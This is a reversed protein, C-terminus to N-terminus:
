QGHLHSAAGHVLAMTHRGIVRLSALERQMEQVNPRMTEDMALHCQLHHIRQDQEVTRSLANQLSNTMAADSARRRDAEIPDFSLLSKTPSFSGDLGCAIAQLALEDEDVAFMSSDHSREAPLGLQQSIEDLSLGLASPEGAVSADNCSHATTPATGVVYDSGSVPSVPAPAMGYAHGTAAGNLAITQAASSAAVAAAHAVAVAASTTRLPEGDEPKELMGYASQWHMETQSAANWSSLLPMEETRLFFLDLADDNTQRFGPAPPSPLMQDIEHSNHVPAGIPLSPMQAYVSTLTSRALDTSPATTAANSANKSFPLAPAGPTPSSADPRTGNGPSQSSSPQPGPAPLSPQSLRCKFEDQVQKSNPQHQIQVQQSHRHSQGEIRRPKDAEEKKRVDEKTNQKVTVIEVEPLNGTAAVHAANKLTETSEKAKKRGKNKKTAKRESRKKGIRGGAIARAKKALRLGCANCLSAPGAPGSRRVPTTSTSCVACAWVPPVPAQSVGSAIEIPTKIISPPSPPPDEVPSRPPPEHPNRPHPLSLAFSPTPNKFHMTRKQIAPTCSHVLTAANTLQLWSDFSM